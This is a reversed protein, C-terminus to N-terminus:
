VLANDVTSHTPTMIWESESTLRYVAPCYPVNCMLVLVVTCVAAQQPARAVLCVRTWGNWKEGRGERDTKKRKEEESRLWNSFM